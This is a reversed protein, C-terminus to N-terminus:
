ADPTVEEDQPFILQWDGVNAVGSCPVKRCKRQCFNSYLRDADSVDPRARLFAKLNVVNHVVGQPDRVTWATTNFDFKSEGYKKALNRRLEGTRAAAVRRRREVACQKSCTSTEAYPYEWFETGCIVCFRQEKADTKKQRWLVKPEGEAPILKHPKRPKNKRPPTWGSAIRKQYSATVQQVHRKKRCNMCFRAQPRDQEIPGGCMECKRETNM